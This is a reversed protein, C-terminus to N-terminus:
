ISYNNNVHNNKRRRRRKALIISSIMYLSFGGITMILGYLSIAGRDLYSGLGILIAGLFLLGLGTRASAPMWVKKTLQIDDVGLM